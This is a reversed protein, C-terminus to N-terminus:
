NNNVNGGGVSILNWETGLFKQYIIDYIFDNRIIGVIKKNLMKSKERSNKYIQIFINTVNNEDMQNISNLFDIVKDIKNIM